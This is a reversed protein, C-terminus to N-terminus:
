QDGNEHIEIRLLRCYRSFIDIPVELDTMKGAWLGLFVGGETVEKHWQVENELSLTFWIMTRKNRLAQRLAVSRERPHTDLEEHVEAQEAIAARVFEKPTMGDPPDGYKLGVIEGNQATVVEKQVAIFTAGGGVSEVDELSEYGLQRAIRAARKYKKISARGRGLMNMLEPLYSEENTYIRHGLDDKRHRWLELELINSAAWMILTTETEYTKKLAAYSTRIIGELTDLGRLDDIIHPLDDPLNGPEFGPIAPIIELPLVSM